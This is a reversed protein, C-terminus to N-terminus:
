SFDKRSSSSSPDTAEVGAAPRTLLLGAVAAVVTLAAAAVNPYFAIGAIEPPLQSGYVPDGTFGYSAGPWLGALILGVWFASGLFASMAMAFRDEVPRRLVCILAAGGMSAAAFFSMACHLKAHPLWAPNGMHAANLVVADTAIPTILTSLAAAVLLARGLREAQRAPRTSPRLPLSDSMAPSM